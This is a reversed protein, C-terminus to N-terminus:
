REAQHTKQTSQSMSKGKSGNKGKKRNRRHPTDIKVNEDGDHGTTHMADAAWNNNVIQNNNNQLTEAETNLGCQEATPTMCGTISTKSKKYTVVMGNHPHQSVVAAQQQHGNM